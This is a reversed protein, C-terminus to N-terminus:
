GCFVVGVAQVASRRAAAIAGYTMSQGYTHAHDGMTSMLDPLVGRIPRCGRPPPPLPLFRYWRRADRDAPDPVALRVQALLPLLTYCRRVAARREAMQVVVAVFVHCLRQPTHRDPLPHERAVDAATLRQVFRRAAYQGRHHWDEYQRRTFVGSYLCVLALWHADAPSWGLAQVAATRHELHPM